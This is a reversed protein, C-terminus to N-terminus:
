GRKNRLITTVARWNELQFHFFSCMFFAIALNFFDFELLRPNFAYIAALVFLFQMIIIISAMKNSQKIVFQDEYIGLRREYEKEDLLSQLYRVRGYLSKIYLVTLVPISLSLLFVVRNSFIDSLFSLITSLFVLQEFFLCTYLEVKLAKMRNTPMM